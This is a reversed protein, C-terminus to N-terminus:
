WVLVIALAGSGLLASWLIVVGCAGGAVFACLVFFHV